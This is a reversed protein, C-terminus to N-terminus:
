LRLISKLEQEMSQLGALMRRLKNRNCGPTLRIERDYDGGPGFLLAPVEPLDEIYHWQDSPQYAAGDGISAYCRFKHIPWKGASEFQVVEFDCGCDGCWLLTIRLVRGYRDNRPRGVCHEAAPKFCNPCVIQQDAAKKTRTGETESM